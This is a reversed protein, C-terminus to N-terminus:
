QYLGCRIRLRGLFYHIFPIKRLSIKFLAGALSGILAGKRNKKFKYILGAPLVFAVGLIFNSLEGVGSTTTITLHILNKILCIVIGSVPGMYGIKYAAFMLAYKIAEHYNGNKHYYHLFCSLLANGAGVTNVVEKIHVAPYPVVMNDARTYMLLGAKGMGLIGCEMSYEESMIRMAEYPDSKIEDDSVYVIDAATLFKQDLENERDLGNFNVVLKKGSEKVPALFPECFKTNSLIVLDADALAEAFRAMDYPVEEMDKIDEFTQLKRESDYFIVASPTQELSAFM